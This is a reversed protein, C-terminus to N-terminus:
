GPRQHVLAHEGGPLDVYRRVLDDSRGLVKHVLALVDAARRASTAFRTRQVLDEIDRLMRRSQEELDRVRETM